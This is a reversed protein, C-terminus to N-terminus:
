FNYQNILENRNYLTVSTSTSQVEVVPAPLVAPRMEPYSESSSLAAAATGGGGGGGGKAGSVGSAMTSPSARSSASPVAATSATNEAPSLHANMRSKISCDNAKHSLQRLQTHYRACSCLVNKPSLRTLCWMNSFTESPTTPRKPHSQQDSWADPNIITM